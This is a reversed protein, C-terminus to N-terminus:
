SHVELLADYAALSACAVPVAALRPPLTPVALPPPDPALALLPDRGDALAQRLRRATAAEGDEVMAQVVRKFLRAAPLRGREAVLRQWVTAFPEGLETVLAPAVQELAQPQHALEPLYHRYCISSANMGVRPHVVEGGDHRLVV